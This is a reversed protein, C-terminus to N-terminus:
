HRSVRALCGFNYQAHARPRARRHTSARGSLPLLRRVHRADSPLHRLRAGGADNAPANLLQRFGDMRGPVPPHRHAAAATPAPGVAARVPQRDIGDVRHLGGAASARAGTARVRRVSFGM